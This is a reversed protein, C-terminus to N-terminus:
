VLLRRVAGSSRKRRSYPSAGSHTSTKRLRRTTGLRRTARAAARRRDNTPAGLGARSPRGGGLRPRPAHRVVRPRAPLVVDAIILPTARRRSIIARARRRDDDDDDPAHHHPRLGRPARDDDRSRSRSRRRRDPHTADAGPAHALALSRAPPPPPDDGRPPAGPRPAPITARAAVNTQRADGDDVNPTPSRSRSRSRSSAGRERERGLGVAAAVALGGPPPRPSPMAPSQRPGRSPARRDLRGLPAPRFKLRSRQRRARRVDAEDATERENNGM